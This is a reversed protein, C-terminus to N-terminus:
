IQLVGFLTNAYKYCINANQAIPEGIFVEKDALCLARSATAM